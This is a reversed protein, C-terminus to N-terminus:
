TECFFFVSNCYFNNSVHFDLIAGMGVIVMLYGFSIACAIMFNINEYSSTEKYTVIYICFTIFPINTIFAGLIYVCVIDDLMSVLKCIWLHHHRYVEPDFKTFLDNLPSNDLDAEMESKLKKYDGSIMLCTLILFLTIGSLRLTVWYFVVINAIRLLVLKWSEDIDTKFPLIILSIFTKDSGMLMICIFPIPGLILIICITKKLNRNVGQLLMGNPDTESRIEEWFKVMTPIKRSNVCILTCTITVQIISVHILIKLFLDPGFVESEYSFLFRILGFLDYLSAVISYIIFGILVCKSKQEKKYLPFLAFVNMFLFLPHLASSITDSHTSAEDTHTSAEDTHSSAEDTHTSAEDTHRSAEDTHSSEEDKHRSVEDKHSFTEAKHSSAEDKHTSAKNQAEIDETQANRDDKVKVSSCQDLSEERSTAEPPASM